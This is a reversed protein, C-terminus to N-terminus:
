VVVVVVFFVFSIWSPLSSLFKITYAAPTTRFLYFLLSEIWFTSFSLLFNRLTVPLLLVFCFDLLSLIPYFCNHFM